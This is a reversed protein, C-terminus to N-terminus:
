LEFVHKKLKNMWKTKTILTRVNAYVLKGSLVVNRSSLRAVLKKHAKAENASLLAVESYLHIRTKRPLTCVDHQSPNTDKDVGNMCGYCADKVVKELLLDNLEEAFVIALEAQVQAQTMVVKKSPEIQPVDAPDAQSSAVTEEPMTRDIPTPSYVLEDDDDDM